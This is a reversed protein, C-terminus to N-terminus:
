CSGQFKHKSSYLGTQKHKKINFDTKPLRFLHSLLAFCIIEQLIIIHELLKYM